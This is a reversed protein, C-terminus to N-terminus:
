YKRRSSDSHRDSIFQTSVLRFTSFAECEPLSIPAYDPVFLAALVSLGLFQNSFTLRDANKTFDVEAFKHLKGTLALAEARM